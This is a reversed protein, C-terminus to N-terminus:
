LFCMNLSSTFYLLFFGRVGFLHSYHLVNQNMLSNLRYFDAKYKMNKFLGGVFAALHIVHTPRHKEFLFECQQTNRSFFVDICTQEDEFRLLDLDVWTLDADKSSVFVWTENKRKAFAPDQSTTVIHEIAKGVLGTAGTVLIVDHTPTEATNNSEPSGSLPHLDSDDRIMKQARFSKSFPWIEKVPALPTQFFIVSREM